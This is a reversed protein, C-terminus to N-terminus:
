PAYIINNVNGKVKSFGMKLMAGQNAQKNEESNKGRLIHFYSVQANATVQRIHEYIIRIKVAGKTYGNIM